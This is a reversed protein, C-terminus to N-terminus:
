SQQKAKNKKKLCFVAYSIAVHSSNLRTSKRDARRNYAGKEARSLVTVFPGIFHNGAVAPYLVLCSSRSLLSQLRLALESVGAARTPSQNVRFSDLLLDTSQLAGVGCTAHRYM